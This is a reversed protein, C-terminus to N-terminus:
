LVLEDIGVHQLPLPFLNRVRSGEGTTPQGELGILNVCAAGVRM